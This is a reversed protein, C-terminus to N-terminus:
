SKPKRKEVKELHEEVLKRLVETMKKDIEVCYIKLKKHLDEPLPLNVHKM